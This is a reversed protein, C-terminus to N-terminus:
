FCQEMEMGERQCDNGQDHVGEQENKEVGAEFFQEFFQQFVRLGPSAGTQHFLDWNNGTV